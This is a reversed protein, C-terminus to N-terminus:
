AGEPQELLFLELPLTGTCQPLRLSCPSLCQAEIRPFVPLWMIYASLGKGLLRSTPTGFLVDAVHGGSSGLLLMLERFCQRTRELTHFALGMPPRCAMRCDM